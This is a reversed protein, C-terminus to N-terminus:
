GIIRIRKGKPSEKILENIQMAKGVKNIKEFASGSFAWAAVTLKHNLEGVGLVKGPVVIIEGEKTHKNLKYLNVIRKYKSPKSLDEALRKWIAAKHENAKKRLEQILDALHQNTPGTRKM